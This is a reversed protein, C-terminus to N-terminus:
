RKKPPEDYDTARMAAVSIPRTPTKDDHLLMSLRRHAMSVEARLRGVEDLASLALGLAAHVEEIEQRTM